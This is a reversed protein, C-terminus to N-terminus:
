SEPQRMKPNQTVFTGGFQNEKVKQTPIGNLNNEFNNANLDGNQLYDYLDGHFNNTGNKMVMNVFGGSSRGFRADYNTTQVNVEQLADLNPALQWTGTGNNQQTINSGNLTFQQYGQVGGGLVYNNSIDWGRTGSYGSAGFQTQLFQSGPVTGIMNYVQRGALPINDLERSQMVSSGVANEADLLPATDTVSVTEVVAGLDMKLDLVPSEGAQLVVNQQVLTKFGDARVTVTYTGPLIYPIQYTGASTTTTTWPQRTDNNLAVISANPILAGSPDSVHGSLTGRFEQASALTVLILLASLVISGRFLRFCLKCISLSISHM